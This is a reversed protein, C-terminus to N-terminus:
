LALASQWDSSYLFCWANWKRLLGGYIRIFESLPWYTILPYLFITLVFYVLLLPYFLIRMCRRNFDFAPLCLIKRTELNDTTYLRKLYTFFPLFVITAILRFTLLHILGESSFPARKFGCQEGDTWYDFFAYAYFLWAIVYAYIILGITAIIYFYTKKKM